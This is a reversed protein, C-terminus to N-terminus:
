AAAKAARERARRERMYRAMYANYEARVWRQKRDCDIAHVQVRPKEDPPEVERRLAEVRQAKTPPERGWEAIYARRWVDCRM